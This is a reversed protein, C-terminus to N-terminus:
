ESEADELLANVDFLEDCLRTYLKGDLHDLEHCIVRALFDQGELEFWAGHRDQARLKVRTPRTVLGQVGTVSLCGEIGEQAGDQELVEPNVLEILTETFEGDECEKIDLVLAVRRLAGVQPAALGVGNAAYLTERMDELLTHLREDFQTIERSVKHLGPDDKQLINRLAM